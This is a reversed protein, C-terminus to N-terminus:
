HLSISIGHMKTLESIVLYKGIVITQLMMMEEETLVVEHSEKKKKENYECLIRKTESFIKKNIAYIDCLLGRINMNSEQNFYDKILITCISLQKKADEEIEELYDKPMSFGFQTADPM